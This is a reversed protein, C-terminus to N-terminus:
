VQMKPSASHGFASAVASMGGSITFISSISAAIAAPDRVIRALRLGFAAALRRRFVEVV